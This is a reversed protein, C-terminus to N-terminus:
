NRETGYRVLDVAISLDNMVLSNAQGFSNNPESENQGFANFSVSLVFVLIYIQKTM